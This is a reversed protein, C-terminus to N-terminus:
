IYKDRCVDITQSLFKQQYLVEVAKVKFPILPLKNQSGHPLVSKGCM